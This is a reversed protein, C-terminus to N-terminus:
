GRARSGSTPGSQVRSRRENAPKMRRPVIGVAVVQEGAEIQISGVLDARQREAGLGLKRDDEGQRPTRSQEHEVLRRDSQIRDGPLLHERFQQCRNAIFAARDQNRRVGDAVDLPNGIVDAHDLLALQHKFSRRRRDDVAVPDHIEDRAVVGDEIMLRTDDDLPMVCSRQRTNISWLTVDTSRSAPRPALGTESAGTESSSSNTASPLHDRHQPVENAVRKPPM